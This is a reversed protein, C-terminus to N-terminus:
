EVPTDCGCDKWVYVDGSDSDFAVLADGFPEIETIARPDTWCHQWVVGDVSHHLFSGDGDSPTDQSGALIMGFETAATDYIAFGRSAVESGVRHETWTVGADTSVWVLPGGAGSAVDGDGLLALMWVDNQITLPATGVSAM